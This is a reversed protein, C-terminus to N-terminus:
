QSVDGWYIGSVIFKLVDKFLFSCLHIRVKPHLWGGRVRLAVRRVRVSDETGRFGWGRRGPERRPGTRRTPTSGGWPREPPGVAVGWPRFQGPAHLSHRRVPHFFGAAQGPKRVPGLTSPVPLPLPQPQASTPRGSPTYRGLQTWLECLPRRPGTEKQSFGVLRNSTQCLQAPAQSPPCAPPGAPWM